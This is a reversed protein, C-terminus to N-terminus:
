WKQLRKNMLWSVYFIIVATNVMLLLLWMWRISGGIETKEDHIRTGGVVAPDIHEEAYTDISLFAMVGKEASLDGLETDTIDDGDFKWRLDVVFTEYSEAGLVRRHGLLCADYIPVYENESGIVFDDTKTRMRLELPFRKEEDDSQKIGGVEILFDFDVEYFVAINSNNYMTFEYVSETGPAIVNSSDSSEVTVEGKDNKHSTSFIKLKEKGEWAAKDESGVTVSTDKGVVFVIDTEPLYNGVRLAIIGLTMLMLLFVINVMLMIWVWAKRQQRVTEKVAGGSSKFSM